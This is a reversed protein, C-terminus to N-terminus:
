PEEQLVELPWLRAVMREGRLDAGRKHLYVDFNNRDRIGVVAAICDSALKAMNDVDVDAYPSKVRKDIGYTLNFLNEPLLYFWLDLAYMADPDLNVNLLAVSGLGGGTNIFENKFKRGADSLIKRGRSVIYLSNVSVPLRPYDFQIM